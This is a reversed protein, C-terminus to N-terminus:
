AALVEAPFDSEFRVAVEGEETNGTGEGAFRAKILVIKQGNALELEVTVDVATVLAELDLEARHTTAGEIYAVQPVTKFGHPADVGLVTERMPRGLNYTWAGKARILEGNMKVAIVGGVANTM